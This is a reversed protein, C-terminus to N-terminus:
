QKEYVYCPPLAVFCPSCPTLAVYSVYLAVYCPTVVIAFLHLM